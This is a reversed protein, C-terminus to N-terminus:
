ESTSPVTKVVTDWDYVGAIETGSPVVLFDKEDWEGFVLSRERRRRKPPMLGRRSGGTCSTRITTRGKPTFELDVVHPTTAVCHCVERTFVDCAIVKLLM